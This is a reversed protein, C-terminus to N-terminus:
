VSQELEGLAPLVVWGLYMHFWYSPVAVAPVPINTVLLLSFARHWMSSPSPVYSVCAISCDAVPHVLVLQFQAFPLWSCVVPTM